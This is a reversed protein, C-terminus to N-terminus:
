LFYKAYVIDTTELSYGANIANWTVTAGSLSFAPNVGLYYEEKGNVVLITKNPATPINSLVSVINTATVTLQEIIQVANQGKPDQNVNRTIASVAFDSPLTNFDFRYIFDFDITLPDSTTFATEIGSDLYYFSLVYDTSVYTIRGYIENGNIDAIPQKTTFDFIETRNNPSTTVIGVSFVDASVQVPVAVGNQGATALAASIDATVVLDDEGAGVAINTLKIPASFVKNIQKPQLQPM